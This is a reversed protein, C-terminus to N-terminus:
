STPADDLAWVLAYRAIHAHAPASIPQPLRDGADGHVAVDAPFAPNGTGDIVRDGFVINNQQALVM